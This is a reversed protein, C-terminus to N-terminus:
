LNLVEFEFKVLAKCGQKNLLSCQAIVSLTEKIYRFNFEMGVAHITTLLDLLYILSGSYKIMYKFKEMFSDLTLNTKNQPFNQNILDEYINRIIKHCNSDDFLRDSLDPNPKRIEFNIKEICLQINNANETHERQDRQDRQNVM